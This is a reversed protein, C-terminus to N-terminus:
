MRSLQLEGQFSVIRFPISSSPLIAAVMVPSTYYGSMKAKGRGSRPTPKRDRIVPCSIGIVGRVLESDVYPKMAAIPEKMVQPRNGM